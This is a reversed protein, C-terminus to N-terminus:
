CGRRRRIAGGILVAADVPQARLMEETQMALLNRFMMASPKM